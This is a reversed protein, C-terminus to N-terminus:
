KEEEYLDPLSILQGDKLGFLELRRISVASKEAEFGAFTCLSQVLLVPNLTENSACRLICEGCLCGDQYYAEFTRIQDKINKEVPEKTKKSKKLIMIQDQDMFSPVKAAQEETLEAPVSFRYSAFESYASLNKKTIPLKKLYTFAIGKPFSRNIEEVLAMDMVNPTELEFYESSSESGLSLPQVVNVIEHPNFGQSYNTSIGAKKLGRKFLRHLDLHSIYKMNGEKTFRLVYRNM